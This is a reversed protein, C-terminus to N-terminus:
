SDLTPKGTPNLMDYTGAHVTRSATCEARM